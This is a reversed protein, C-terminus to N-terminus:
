KVVDSVKVSYTENNALGVCVEPSIVDGDDDNDCRKDKLQSKKVVNLINSGRYILRTPDGLFHQNM